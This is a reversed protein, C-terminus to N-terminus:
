DAKARALCYKDLLEQDPETGIGPESWLQIRMKGDSQDRAPVLPRALDQRLLDESPFFDAPYTCNAKAALALGFRQGIASQPTAGVWCPVCNEHCANHIALATTLGGVRGPKLNVFQCSKLELAMEAQALDTISEDLCIPTRVAEQVMAHGVLDDAPLPQEIMALTFDDFRCLMEMHELGLAGEADAHLTGIPYEKRVADVMFVDWGPRLKLGVRSFGADLARGIGSLFDDVSDMQDFTVGVEVAQREPGLLQHLPQGQLRAQLDWWATDLAAKAFRNGRFPALRQQLDDGSDVVTGSIAPVLWDRLCGFVGAAWEASAVPANGPGAEGWGVTQGSQMRVLVTELTDLPRAVTEQPQKRPLAVHFVEISDIQM